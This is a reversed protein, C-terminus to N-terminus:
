NSTGLCDAIRNRLKRELVTFSYYKLALEYNRDAIDKRLDENDLIKRTQELAEETVYGHLEIAQFGKPRIDLLYISYVNVVIPKRYYIAELFANGFGEFTSPYTVLDAHPYVDDLTYIKQGDPTTARFDNVRDAAFITEVGMVRSYDQIRKEYQDGEDGSAHTIVLKAKRGLRSVLEIAHEIGKRQVVRTPQLVLLEDDDVGLAQRVDDAYDDHPPPPNEFEMVNPILSPSIGTRLSLQNSGSTNIVVHHISPLHPPYAMNLYEWVANKLFRQREWFFDHHHAITPIGTESILEALALGLPLNMPIALCNETILLDIDFHRIFEYIRTKIYDKMRHIHATVDPTRRTPGFCTENIKRIEPHNFHLEEVMMSRQPPTDLLGGMYFCHNGLREIVQAWKSTELSVGDTGALRFSIFGINKMGNSRTIIREESEIRYIQKSLAVTIHITERNVWGAM